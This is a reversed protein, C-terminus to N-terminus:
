PMSSPRGCSASIGHGCSERGCPAKGVISLSSASPLRTTSDGISTLSGTSSALSDPGFPRAVSELMSDGPIRATVMRVSSIAPTPPKM